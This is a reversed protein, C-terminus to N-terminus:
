SLQILSVRKRANRVHHSRPRPPNPIRLLERGTRSYGRERLFETAKQELQREDYTKVVTISKRGKININAM